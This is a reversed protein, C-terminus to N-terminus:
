SSHSTSLATIASFLPKLSPSSVHLFQAVVIAAPTQHQPDFALYPPERHLRS